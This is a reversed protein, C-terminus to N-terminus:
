LICKFEGIIRSRNLEKVSLDRVTKRGPQEHHAINHEFVKFHTVLAASGFPIPLLFQAAVNIFICLIPLLNIWRSMVPLFYARLSNGNSPKGKARKV